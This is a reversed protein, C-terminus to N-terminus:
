QQVSGAGTAIQRVQAQPHYEPLALKQGLRLVNANVMGNAKCIEDLLRPTARHYNKIAIGALTDGSAVEYSATAPSISEPEGNTPGVTKVVMAGSTGRESSINGRVSLAGKGNAVVIQKPGGVAAAHMAVSLIWVGILSVFAGGMFGLTLYFSPGRKNGSHLFDSQVGPWLAELEASKHLLPEDEEVYAAKSVYSDKSSVKYERPSSKERSFFSKDRSSTKPERVFEPLSEFELKERESILTKSGDSIDFV